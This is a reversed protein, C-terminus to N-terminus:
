QLPYKDINYERNQSQVDGLETRSGLHPTQTWMFCIKRNHRGAWWLLIQCLSSTTRSYSLVSPFFPFLLSDFLPHPMNTYLARQYSGAKWMRICLLCRRVTPHLWPTTHLWTNPLHKLLVPCSRPKWLVGLAHSPMV